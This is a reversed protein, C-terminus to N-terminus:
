STRPAERTQTYRQKWGSRQGQRAPSAGVVVEAAPQGVGSVEGVWISYTHCCKETDEHSVSAETGGGGGWPLVKHGNGTKVRSVSM